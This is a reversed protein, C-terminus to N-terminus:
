GLYKIDEQLMKFIRNLIKLIFYLVVLESLFLIVKGKSGLPFPKMRLAINMINM